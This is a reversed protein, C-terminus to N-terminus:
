GRNMVYALTQPENFEPRMQIHMDACLSAIEASALKRFKLVDFCRGSRVLAPDINKTNPLNTTFVLKRNPLTVLGDGANLFRQMSSNGDTRPSLLIDADEVVLINSGSEVFNVFFEDSDFTAPDYSLTASVGLSQLMGRLFTTKGTGPEGICILVNASSEYFERYYQDLPKGLFPYMADHPLHSPNVPIEMTNMYKNYVWNITAGVPHGLAVIDAKTKEVFEHTGYLNIRPIDNRDIRTIYVFCSSPFKGGVPAMALAERSSTFVTDFKDRMYAKVADISSATVRVKGYLLHSHRENLADTMAQHMVAECYSDPHFAVKLDNIM